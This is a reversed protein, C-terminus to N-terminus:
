RHRAIATAGTHSIVVVYQANDVNLRYVGPSSSISSIRSSSQPLPVAPDAKFSVIAFLILGAIIGCGLGAIFKLNKM